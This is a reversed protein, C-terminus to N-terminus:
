MKKDKGLKHTTSTSLELTVVGDEKTRRVLYQQEKMFDKKIEIKSRDYGIYRTPQGCVKHEHSCYGGEHLLVRGEFVLDFFKECTDCYFGWTSYDWPTPSPDVPKAM